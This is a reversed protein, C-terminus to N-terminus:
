IVGHKGVRRLVGCLLTEWGSLSRPLRWWMEVPSWLGGWRLAATHDKQSAELWAFPYPSLFLPFVSFLPIVAPFVFLCLSLLVSASVSLHVSPRPSCLHILVTIMIGSPHLGSDFPHTCSTCVGCLSPSAPSGVKMLWLRIESFSQKLPFKFVILVVM